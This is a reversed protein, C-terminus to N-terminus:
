KVLMKSSCNEWYFLWDNISIPSLVFWHICRSISVQIRASLSLTSLFLTFFAIAMFSRLSMCCKGRTFSSPPIDNEYWFRDSNRVTIFQEALLCTFTPGLVVGYDPTELVGGVLLDIDEKNSFGCTWLISNWIKSSLTITGTITVRSLYSTQGLMYLVYVSKM